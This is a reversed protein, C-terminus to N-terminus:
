GLSTLHQTIHFCLAVREVNNPQKQVIIYSVQLIPLLYALTKGSGTESQIFLNEEFKAINGKKQGGNSPLLSKIARSQVITPQNLRFYGDPNTIAGVIRQDLGLKRFQCILEQGGERNGSLCKDNEEDVDMTVTFDSDFIHGSPFSVKIERSANEKRDLDRPRAHFESLYLARQEHESLTSQIQRLLQNLFTLNVLWYFMFLICVSM